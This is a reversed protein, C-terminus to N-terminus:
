FKFYSRFYFKSPNFFISEKDKISIFSKGGKAIPVFSFCIMYELSKAKLSCILLIGFLFSFVRTWFMMTFSDFVIYPNIPTGDRSVVNSLIYQEM